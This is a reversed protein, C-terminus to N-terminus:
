IAISFLVIFILNFFVFLFEYQEHTWMHAYLCLFRRSLFLFHHSHIGQKSLLPPSTHLHDLPM